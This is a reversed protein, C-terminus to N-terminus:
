HVRYRRQLEAVARRYEDAIDAMSLQIYRLTTSGDAHGMMRQLIPLRVGSRAMDAGFTHRFRHPNARAIAHDRRRQRFLSRLGSMTMPSGRRPGQLIVFLRPTTCGAPRERRVYDAISRGVLEPLPLVRDRQGKGRIRLQRDEVLVDGMQLQLVEASRLGCLLMVHAIALDRYRRLSRLFQRVETSSLPEVVRRPVKVRLALRRRRPLQQLGLVRDKGPGRYYPAPGLAGPGDDLDSGVCFRYLLRATTLRRNISTPQAAAARQSGIYELLREGTLDRVSYGVRDLWRYLVVLDYGYARITARSLGRIALAALFRNADRIPRLKADVLQWQGSRKVPRLSTTGSAPRSEVAARVRTPGDGNGPAM